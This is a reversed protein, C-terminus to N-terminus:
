KRTQKSNARGIEMGWIATSDHPDETEHQHVGSSGCLTVDGGGQSFRAMQEFWSRPIDQFEFGVTIEQCM